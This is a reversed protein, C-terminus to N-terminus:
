HNVRTNKMIKYAASRSPKPPINRAELQKVVFAFAEEKVAGDWGGPSSLIFRKNRGHLVLTGEMEGIEVNAIEDWRIHWTGFSSRHTLGNSDIDFSGAGLAMYLGFLSSFTCGLAPWYLQSLLAATLGFLCFVLWAWGIIRYPRMEIHYNDMSNPM